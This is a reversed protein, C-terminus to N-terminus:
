LCSVSPAASRGARTRPRKVASRLVGALVALPGKGNGRFPPVLDVRRESLRARLEIERTDYMQMMHNELMHGRDDYPSPPSM